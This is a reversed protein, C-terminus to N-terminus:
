DGGNAGSLYGEIILTLASRDGESIGLFPRAPIDGWPIPSGKSTTGFQGKAAGFQDVAAYILSSGIEVSNPGAQWHIESSLRGSPGFLPRFDVRANATKGERRRYADITAQSKPAWPTGDPARGEPFRDETSNVLAEGLDQMLPTLDTLRAAIRSLAAAVEEDTVEVRIM